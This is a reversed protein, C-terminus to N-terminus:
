LSAHRMEDTMAIFLEHYGELKKGMIAIQFADSIGGTLLSRVARNHTSVTSFPDLDVHDILQELIGTALLFTTQKVRLLTEMQNEAAVSQLGDWHIHTTLDMDGPYLLPNSILQHKYYGRLSGQRHVTECWEENTYGYDVTIFLGQQLVRGIEAIYSKMALPVEMRQGYKLKLDQKQLYSIVEPNELVIAREILQQQENFTIYIEFLEDQQEVVHVPFADFLENAFVIGNFSDVEQISTCWRVGLDVLREQQLTRHYPSVEVMIYTLTKYTQPSIRQWETLVDYAFQGTGGGIECIVPSTVNAEVLSVFFKAWQKAFISINSSTYFDGQKGIKQKYKMYYGFAPDYLAKEMFDAYSIAQLKSAKIGEIIAQMMNRM